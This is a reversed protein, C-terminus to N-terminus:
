HPAKRLLLRALFGSPGSPIGDELGPKGGVHIRGPIYSGFIKDWFTIFNGYNSDHLKREPAHHILHMAPTVLVHELRRSWAEPLQINAHHFMASIFTLTQVTILIWAPPGVTTVVLMALVSGIIAELPHARFATSLDMGQDSHHLQHIRWLCDVAHFLRHALYSSLTLALITLAFMSWIPADVLNFLGWGGRQAAEAALYTSVPLLSGLSLNALGVATNLTLRTSDLNSKRAPLIVEVVVLIFFSSLIVAYTMDWDSNSDFM